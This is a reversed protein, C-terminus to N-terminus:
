SLKILHADNNEKKCIFLYTCNTLYHLEQTQEKLMIYSLLMIAQEPFM